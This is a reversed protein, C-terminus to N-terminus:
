AKHYANVGLIIAHGNVQTGTVINGHASGVVMTKGSTFPPAKKLNMTIVLTDGKVDMGAADARETKEVGSSRSLRREAPYTPQSHGPRRERTGVERCHM